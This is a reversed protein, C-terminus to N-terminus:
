EINWKPKARSINGRHTKTSNRIRMGSNPVPRTNLTHFAGPSIQGQARLPTGCGIQAM